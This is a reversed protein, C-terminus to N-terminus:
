RFIRPRPRPASSCRRFILTTWCPATIAPASQAGIKAAIEQLREPRAEAVHVGAVLPHAACTEARIGGCWGVGVVAVEIRDM